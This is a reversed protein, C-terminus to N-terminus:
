CLIITNYMYIYVREGLIYTILSDWTQTWQERPRGGCQSTAWAAMCSIWSIVMWYLASHIRMDACLKLATPPHYPVLALLTWGQNQKTRSWVLDYWIWKWRNGASMLRSYNARPVRSRSFWLFAFPDAQKFLSPSVGIWVYCLLELYAHRYTGNGLMGLLDLYDLFKQFLTLLKPSKAEFLKQEVRPIVQLAFDLLDVEASVSKSSTASIQLGTARDSVHLLEWLM